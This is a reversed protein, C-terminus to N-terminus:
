QANGITGASQLAPTPPLIHRNQPGKLPLIQRGTSDEMGDVPHKIHQTLTDAARALVSQWPENGTQRFLTMSPYWPSDLRESQWRWSPSAPVFTWVPVDLAGAFHVTTNDISIVLDLAKIQAAFDEMDGAPAIEGPRYARLGTRRQFENRVADHDGYQLDIFQAGSQGLIPAWDLLSMGRQRRQIHSKGGNWSFGIKIGDGLAAYRARWESVLPPPALLYPEAREFDAPDRRLLRPLSGIPISYGARVSANSDDPLRDSVNLWPFARRMLSNIRAECHLSVPGDLEALEGLCSAFMIVDGAAQEGIIYLHKGGLAQGHWDAIRLKAPAGRPMRRRWEYEDWGEAYRGQLLLINARNNHAQVYDPRTEIARELQRLALDQEGREMNINALNLRAEVTGPMLELAHELSKQAADLEGTRALIGGLATHCAANSDDMALAMRLAGAAEGLREQQEYLSSLALLDQPNDPDFIVARLIEAEADEFQNAAALAQGLQRSAEAEARRLDNIEIGSQGSDGVARQDERHAALQHGCSRLVGAFTLRAETYEPSLRLAQWLSAIAATPNCQAARTQGLSFHAEALHPAQALIHTYCHAAQDMMGAAFLAKALAGVYENNAPEATAATRLHILAADLRGAQYAARGLAYASEINDTPLTQDNGSSSVSM